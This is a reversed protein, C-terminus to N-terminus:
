GEIQIQIYTPRRSTYVLSSYLDVLPFKRQFNLRHKKKPYMEWYSIANQRLERLENASSVTELIRKRFNENGTLSDDFSRFRVVGNEISKFKEKMVIMERASQRDPISPWL